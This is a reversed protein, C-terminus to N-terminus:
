IDKKRIKKIVMDQYVKFAKRNEKKYIYPSGIAEGCNSCKLMKIKDISQKDLNTLEEPLMIRDMYMRRLNGPGDKQYTAFYTNCVRCYLDLIRTNGRDSKYKDKKIKLDM